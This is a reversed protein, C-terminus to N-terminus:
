CNSRSANIKRQGPITIPAFDAKTTGALASGLSPAAPISAPGYSPYTAIRLTTPTSTRNEWVRGLPAAGLAPLGVSFPATGNADLATAVAADSASEADRRRRGFQRRLREHASLAHRHPGSPADHGLGRNGADGVPQDRRPQRGARVAALLIGLPDGHNYHISVGNPESLWARSQRGPLLLNELPSDKGVQYRGEAHLEYSKGAELRLGSNQWGEDAAVTVAAGSAPLAEGPTFDTAHPQFRLRVRHRRRVSAMGRGDRRRRRLFNRRLPSQIAPRRCFEAAHSFSRSLASPQRSVGCRGLEMCVARRECAGAPRFEARREAADGAARRVRNARDRDAGAQASGTASAPFYDLTLQGSEWRHTGLLEAIGEAYWPPGVHGLLTYM